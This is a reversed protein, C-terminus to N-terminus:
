IFIFYQVYCVKFKTPRLFIKWLNSKSIFAKQTIFSCALNWKTVRYWLYYKVWALVFLSLFTFEVSACQHSCSLLVLNWLCSIHLNKRISCSARLQTTRQAFTQAIYKLCLADALAIHFHLGFMGSCNYITSDPRQHACLQMLDIPRFFENGFIIM